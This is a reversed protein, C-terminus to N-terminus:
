HIEQICIADKEQKISQNLSLINLTLMQSFFLKETHSQDLNKGKPRVQEGKTGLTIFHLPHTLDSSRM